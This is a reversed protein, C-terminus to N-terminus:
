GPKKQPTVGHFGRRGGHFRRILGAGVLGLGAVLAGHPEPVPMPLITVVPTGFDFGYTGPFAGGSLAITGRSEFSTQLSIGHSHIGLALFRTRSLDFSMEFLSSSQYAPQGVHGLEFVVLSSSLVECCVVNWQIHLDDDADLVEATFTMGYLPSGGNLDRLLTSAKVLRHQFQAHALGTLSLAMLALCLSRIVIRHPSLRHFLRSM